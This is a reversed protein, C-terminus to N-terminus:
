IPLTLMLVNVFLSFAGVTVFHRRADRRWEKLPEEQDAPASSKDPADTASSLRAAIDRAGTAGRDALDRVAPIAREAFDQASTQVSEGFDRLRARYEERM